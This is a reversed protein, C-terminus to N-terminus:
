CRCGSERVRCSLKRVMRDHEEDKGEKIGRVKSEKELFFFFSSLFAFLIVRYLWLTM